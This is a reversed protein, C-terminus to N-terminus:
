NSDKVAQKKRDADENLMGQLAEADRILQQEAALPNNSAPKAAAELAPAAQPASTETTENGGCATLFGTLMLTSALIFRKMEENELLQAQIRVGYSGQFRLSDLAHSPDVTSVICFV